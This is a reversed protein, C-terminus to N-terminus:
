KDNRILELANKYLAQGLIEVNEKRIQSMKEVIVAIDEVQSQYPADSEVLIKDIPVMSILEKSQKNHLVKQNFSIYGGYNLVKKLLDTRANFSHFVFKKPMMEWLDNLIMDAKVAHILLTRDYKKALDMQKIFVKKQTKYDPNKLMDIGCEGIVAVPYKQLLKELVQEWNFNTENVYWPHLGFAPIIFNPHKEYLYVVKEWDSLKASVCICKKIGVNKLNSFVPTKFDQLHIHTDFYFM